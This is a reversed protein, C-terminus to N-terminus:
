SRRLLITALDTKSGSHRSNGIQMLSTPLGRARDCQRKQDISSDRPVDTVRSDLSLLTSEVTLRVSRRIGYDGNGFVRWRGGGIIEFALYAVVPISPNIMSYCLPESYKGLSTDNIIRESFEEPNWRCDAPHSSYGRFDVSSRCSAM